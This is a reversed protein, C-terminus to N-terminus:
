KGNSFSIIFSCVLVGLNLPWNEVFLETETMTPNKFRFDLLMWILFLDLVVLLGQIVRKIKKM